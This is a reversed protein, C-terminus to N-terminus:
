SQEATRLTRGVIELNPAKVGGRATQLEHLRAYM